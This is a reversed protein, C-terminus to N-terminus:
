GEKGAVKGPQTGTALLAGAVARDPHIILPPSCVTLAVPAERGREVQSAGATSSLLLRRSLKAGIRRLESTLADNALVPVRGLPLLSHGVGELASVCGQQLELSTTKLSKSQSGPFHLQCGSM